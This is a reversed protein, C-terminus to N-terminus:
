GDPGMGALFLEIGGLSLIMEEYRDCEAQLDPAMGDLIHVNKPDIDIHSFLHKYMFFHYSEPHTAPLGVYEDMNVTIVNKFSLEGKHYFEVLKKYVPIPSSGTPLGLVFPREETPAFAQIRKKIYTAAWAGASLPCSLTSLTFLIACHSPCHTISVPSSSLRLSM